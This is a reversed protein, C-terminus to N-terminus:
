LEVCRIGSLLAEVPGKGLSRYSKLHFVFLLAPLYFFINPGPLLALVPSLPLLAGEALLYLLRLHRRRALWRALLEKAGPGGMEAPHRLVLPHHRLRGLAWERLLADTLGPLRRHVTEFARRTWPREFRPMPTDSIFLRGAHSLTFTITDPEGM